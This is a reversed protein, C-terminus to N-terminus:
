THPKICIISKTKILHYANNITISPTKDWRSSCAQNAFEILQKESPLSHNNIRLFYSLLNIQRATSLEKFQMVGINNNTNACANLDIVALEDILSASNQLENITKILKNAIYKDQQLLLPIIDHRLFNRLYKTNNNSEDNVFDLKYETAYEIIQSKQISLLPRWM